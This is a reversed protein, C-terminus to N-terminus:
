KNQIVIDTDDYNFLKTNKSKLDFIIKDASMILDLNEYTLNNFAELLNREFSLVLDDSKIIHELHKVEINKSFKTDFNINNYDAYDSMIEIATGDVLTIIANVKEMKINNPSDKNLIGKQSKILYKRGDLDQSKYNINSIVNGKTDESGVIEDKIKDVKSTQDSKDIYKLYFLISIVVVVIILFIQILIKKLM